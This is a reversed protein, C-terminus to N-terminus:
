GLLRALYRGYDNKAYRAAQARLADRAKQVDLALVEGMVDVAALRHKAAGALLTQQRGDERKGFEVRAAIAERRRM